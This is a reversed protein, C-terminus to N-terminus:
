LKYRKGEMGHIRSGHKRWRVEQLSCVGSMKKRLEDRLSGINWMGVRVSCHYDCMVDYQLSHKCVGPHPTAGEKRLYAPAVWGLIGAIQRGCYDVAILIKPALYKM